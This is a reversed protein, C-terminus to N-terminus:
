HKMQSTIAGLLIWEMVKRPISTLSIPRYNGPDERSGKKYISTVNAKRWDEPVDGLRWSKEFVISLPGVIVDALERLVRQHIADPGMSKYPDLEQLLECVLEKKVSPP